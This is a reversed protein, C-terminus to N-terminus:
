TRRREGLMFMRAVSRQHLHEVARKTRALKELRNGPPVRLDEIAKAADIAKLRRRALDQVPPPLAKVRHSDFVAATFKDSFSRRSDLAFTAVV